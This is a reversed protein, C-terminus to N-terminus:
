FVKVTLGHIDMGGMPPGTALDIIRHLLEHILRSHSRSLLLNPRAGHAQEREGTLSRRPHLRPHSRYSKYSAALTLKLGSGGKV